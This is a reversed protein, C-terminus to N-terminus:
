AEEEKKVATRHQDSVHLKYMDENVTKFGCQKCTFMLGESQDPHKSRLHQKYTSSQICAYDCFPCKYPREGSHRMRHRRLSNHDSTTYDCQDCKFPKEGTHSRVHTRLASRSAASHGCQSCVYPRLKKHVQDHHVRMARADFFQRGCQDCKYEATKKKEVGKEPAIDESAQRDLKSQHRKAHNILQKKNKFGKGCVTCLYNKENSHIKKHVNALYSVSYHRYSCVDCKQLEMDVEHERWLHQAISFWHISSSNDCKICVFGNGNDKHCKQHYELIELSRYRVNCGKHRCVYAGEERELKKKWAIKKNSVDQGSQEKAAVVILKKVQVKNKSSVSSKKPGKSVEVSSENNDGDKQPVSQIVQSAAKSAVDSSKSTLKEPANADIGHVDHIHTKCLELTPFDKMCKPCCVFKRTETAVVPNQDQEKLIEGNSQHKEKIHDMVGRKHLGIYDCMKCKFCKTEEILSTSDGQDNVNGEAVVESFRTSEVLESEQNVPEVTTTLTSKLTSSYGKNPPNQAESSEVNQGTHEAAITQHSSVDYSATLPSVEPQVSKRQVPPNNQQGDYTWNLSYQNVAYQSSLQNQQAHATVPQYAEILSEADLNAGDDAIDLTAFFDGGAVSSNHYNTFQSDNSHHSQSSYGRAPFSHSRPAPPAYSPVDNLNSYGVASYDVQSPQESYHVSVAGINQNHSPDGAYGNNTSYNQEYPVENNQYGYFYQSPYPYENVPAQRAPANDDEYTFSSILDFTTDNASDLPQNTTHHFSKPSLSTFSSMPPLQQNEHHSVERFDNSSTPPLYTNCSGNEIYQLYSGYHAESAM